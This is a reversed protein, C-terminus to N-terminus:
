ASAASNSVSTEQGRERVSVHWFIWAGLLAFVEFGLMAAMGARSVLTLGHPNQEALPPLLLQQLLGMAGGITAVGLGTAGLYARLSCRGLRRLAFHVPVGILITVGYSVLILQLGAEIVAPSDSPRDLLILEFMLIFPAVIPLPALAFGMAERELPM